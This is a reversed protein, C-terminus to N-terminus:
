SCASLLPLLENHVWNGWGYHRYVRDLHTLSQWLSTAARDYPLRFIHRDAGQTRLQDFGGNVVLSLPNFQAESGFKKGTYFRQGRRRGSPATTDCASRSAHLASRLSDARPEVSGAGREVSSKPCSTALMAAVLTAIM